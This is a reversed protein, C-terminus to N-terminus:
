EFVFPGTFTQGDFRISQISDMGITRIIVKNELGGQGEESVAPEKFGQIEAKDIDKLDTGDLIFYNTETPPRLFIAELYFKTVGDKEHQVIPLNPLRTGWSRPGLKFTEPDKGEAALRRKVMNNYANTDGKNQFLMVGGNKAQKFIKDKHPNSRGGSLSVLTLIDISAIAAGNVKSIVDHLNTEPRMETDKCPKVLYM